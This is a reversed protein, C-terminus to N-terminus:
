QCAQLDDTEQAQNTITVCTQTATVQFTLTVSAGAPVYGVDWDIQNGVQTIDNEAPNSTISNPVLATNPPITDTVTVGPAGSSGTNTYTMTYTITAGQSVQGTPSNVKKFTENDAPCSGWALCSIYGFGYHGGEDCDYDTAQFTVQQGAYPCLNITYETWPLYGWTNQTNPTIACYTGDGVIPVQANTLQVIQALNNEWSYIISAVIAGGVLVNIQFYCDAHVGTDGTLYHHSEFVGAFWFTLCTNGNTPVTDTQEIQAWDLNNSDGRSSYLQVADASCAPHDPLLADTNPAVGVGVATATTANVVTVSPPACGDPVWGGATSVSTTWGTLGATFSPNVWAWGTGIGAVGWSGSLVLIALFKLPRQFFEIYPSFLVPLKESSPGIASPFINKGTGFLLYRRKILTIKVEPSLREYIKQVAM